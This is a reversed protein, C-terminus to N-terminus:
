MCYRYIIHEGSSPSYRLIKMLNGNKANLYRAVPDSKLIVPLQVRSKLLYKTVITNIEDEDKVLIHKPVLHHKTINFQLEKIEFLQVDKKLELITKINVSSIKETTIIIYFPFEEDFYKKVDVFKFRCNLNFLIRFTKKIDVNFISKDQDFHLSKIEESEEYFGRDFFMESVTKMCKPVSLNNM